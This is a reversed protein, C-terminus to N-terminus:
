ASSFLGLQQTPPGKRRRRRKPPPKVRASLPKALHESIRRHATAYHDPDLEVGIFVRRTNICAIGTTGSGMCFDLVVAGPGETYTKIMYEMLGVPKQTPHLGVECIFRQVTSPHRLRELPPDKDRRRLKMVESRVRRRNQTRGICTDGRGRRPEKIPNYTVAKRGFVIVEEHERMPGYRVTGINSGRNKVWIWEHRYWRVGSQVLVSSFPQCATMVVAARPKAVRWLEPWLREFDLVSDWRCQTIGYPPDTLVLDVSEPPLEALVDFCDGHYLLCDGVWDSVARLTASRPFWRM